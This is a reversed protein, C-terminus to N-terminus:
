RHGVAVAGHEADDGLAIQQAAGLGARLLTVGSPDREEDTRPSQRLFVHTCMRASDALQHSLADEGDRPLRGDAVKDGQHLDLM